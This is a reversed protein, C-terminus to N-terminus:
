RLTSSCRGSKPAASSASCAQLGLRAVVRGQDVRQTALHLHGLGSGLAHRQQELLRADRLFVEFVQAGGDLGELGHHQLVLPVGHGVGLELAEVRAGLTVGVEGGDQLPLDLHARSIGDAEVVAEAHHLDVREVVGVAAHLVELLRELQVAVVLRADGGQVREHGARLVATGGRTHELGDVERAHLPRVDARRELRAEGGLVLEVGALPQEAAHALEVLVVELVQVPGELGVRPEEVLVRAVAAHPVRERAHGVHEVLPVPEPLDVGLSEVLDRHVVLVGGLEADGRGADEVRAAFVRLARRGVEGARQAEVGRARVEEGRELRDVLAGRLPLREHLQVALPDVEGVGVRLAHVHQVAGGRHGLGLEGIGRTGGLQVPLDELDRGFVRPGDLREVAQQTVGVLVVLQRIVKAVAHVGCAARGLLGLQAVAQTDQLGGLQVVDPAGDVGEFLHQHRVGRVRGRDGLQLAEDHVLLMLAADGLHELGDIPLLVLPALQDGDELGLRAVGLCGIVRLANQTLDGREVLLAAVVGGHRELGPATRESRRRVGGFRARLDVPQGIPHLVPRLGHGSVLAGDIRRFVGDVHALQQRSERADLVLLETVRARGDGGVLAQRLVVGLARVREVHQFTEV